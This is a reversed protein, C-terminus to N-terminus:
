SPVNLLLRPLDKHPLVSQLGRIPHAENVIPVASIQQHFFDVAFKIRHINSKYIGTVYLLSEVYKDFIIEKFFGYM